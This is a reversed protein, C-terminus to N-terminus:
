LASSCTPSEIADSCQELLRNQRPLFYRRQAPIGEDLVRIDRHASKSYGAVARATGSQLTMRNGCCECEVMFFLTTHNPQSVGTSSSVALIAIVLM